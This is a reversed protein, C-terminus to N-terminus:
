LFNSFSISNNGRRISGLINDVPHDRQIGQHVRPHPVLPQRQIQDDDDEQELPDESVVMEQEDEVIIPMEQPQVVEELIPHRSTSPNAQTSSKDGVVKCGMLSGM